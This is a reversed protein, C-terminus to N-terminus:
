FSVAFTKGVGVPVFDSKYEDKFHTIAADGTCHTPGCRQVGLTRFERIIQEIQDDSHRLLHFGGVVLAIENPVIKKALRLISTIGQHSCGTLVVSGDKTDLILSQEHIQDGMEGSLYVHDRIKRPPGVRVPAGNNAAIHEIFTEPCSAPVYVEVGPNRKLVADLGGTHDGHIHSLVIVDIQNLDIGLLRSNHVLVDAQAGCDFLITENPGQLICAFGWDATTGEVLANNDYLVTMVTQAHLKTSTFPSLSLIGLGVTLVALRFTM